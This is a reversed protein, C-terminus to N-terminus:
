ARGIASPISGGRRAISVLGRKGSGSFCGDGHVKVENEEERRNEHVNVEKRRRNECIKVERGEPRNDGVEVDDGERWNGGVEVDREECRSRRGRVRRRRV